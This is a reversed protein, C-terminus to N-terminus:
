LIIFLASILWVYNDNIAIYVGHQQAIKKQVSSHNLNNQGSIHEVNNTNPLSVTSHGFQEIEDIDFINDVGFYNQKTEIVMKM